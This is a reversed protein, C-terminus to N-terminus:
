SCASPDDWQAPNWELIENIEDFSHLQDANFYRDNDLLDLERFMEDTTCPQAFHHQNNLRRIHAASLAELFSEYNDTPLAFHDAGTDLLNDDTRILRLRGDSLEAAVSYLQFGTAFQQDSLGFEAYDALQTVLYSLQRPDLLGRPADDGHRARSTEVVWWNLDDGLQIILWAPANM